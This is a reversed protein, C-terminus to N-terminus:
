HTENQDGGKGLLIEQLLQRRDDTEEKAEEVLKDIKGGLLEMLLEQVSPEHIKEEPEDASQGLCYRYLAITQDLRAKIDAEELIALLMQEVKEDNTIREAINNAARDILTGITDENYRHPLLDIKETPNGLVFQAALRRLTEISKQFSAKRFEAKSPSKELFPQWAALVIGGEGEHLAVVVVRTFLIANVVLKDKHKGFNQVLGLVGVASDPHGIIFFPATEMQNAIVQNWNLFITAGGAPFPVRYRSGGQVECEILIVKDPIKQIKSM